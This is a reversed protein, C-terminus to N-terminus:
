APLACTSQAAAAVHDGAVATATAARQLQSLCSPKRFHTAAPKNINRSQTATSPAFIGQWMDRLLLRTFPYFSRCLFYAGHLTCLERAVPGWDGGLIGDLSAWVLLWLSQFSVGTKVQTKVNINLLGMGDKAVVGGWTAKEQEGTRGRLAEMLGTETKKDEPVLTPPKTKCGVRMRVVWEFSCRSNPVNSHYM